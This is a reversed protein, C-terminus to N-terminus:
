HSKGTSSHLLEDQRKTFTHIRTIYHDLQNLQPHVYQSTQPTDTKNVLLNTM